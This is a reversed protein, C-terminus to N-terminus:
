NSPLPASTRRWAICSRPAPYRCSGRSRRWCGPSRSRPPRRRKGPRSRAWCISWPRTRRARRRRSAPFSTASTPATSRRTRTSRARSSARAWRASPFSASASNRSRRCSRRSPSGGGCRINARFRPSRSSPTRGGSRRRARGRFTRLAQGQRRPDPGQGRRRCGRDAREPRRSASLLSRHRRDETAQAVSRRGAQHAGAPQQPGAAQRREPRHRVRVQNRDGGSRSVPRAGRGCTRRQHIPWLSRRHRLLHRGARRGRRILAIGDKKDVAPGYGYSMGMCGLGLASVELGSNGLKRKQM